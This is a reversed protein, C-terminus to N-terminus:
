KLNQIEEAALLGELLEKAAKQTAMMTANTCQKGASFGSAMGESTQGEATVTQTFIKEGSRNYVDIRYVITALYPKWAPNPVIASFSVIEPVLVLDAGAPPTMGPSDVVQQFIRPLNLKFLAASYAGVPYHLRDFPSTKVTHKFEMFEKTLHLGAIKAHPTVTGLDLIVPEPFKLTRALLFTGGALVLLIFIWSLKKM